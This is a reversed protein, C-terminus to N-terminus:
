SLHFFFFNLVALWGIVSATYYKRSLVGLHLFSVSFCHLKVLGILTHLFNKTSSIVSKCFFQVLALPFSSPIRLCALSGTISSLVQHSGGM